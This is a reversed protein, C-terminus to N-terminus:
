CSEALRGGLEFARRCDQPFRSRRAEAKADADSETKKGGAVGNIAKSILMILGAIAALVVLVIVFGVGSTKLTEGWSMGMDLLSVTM